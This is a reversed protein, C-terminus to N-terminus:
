RASWLILMAAFLVPTVILALASACLLAAHWASVAPVPM